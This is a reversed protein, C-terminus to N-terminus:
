PARHGVFGKRIWAVSYGLLYLAVVPALWWLLARGLLAINKARLALQVARKYDAKFVEVGEKDLGAPIPITTEGDIHQSWSQKEAAGRMLLLSPISIHPLVETSTVGGETPLNSLAVAAVILLYTTSLVVWLRQWGNLRNM